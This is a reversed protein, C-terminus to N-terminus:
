GTGVWIRNSEPHFAVAGITISLAEDFLPEFSTGHNETLWLGGSAYAVFFASGDDSALAVDVVRGSMVTPGVSRLNLGGTWSNEQATQVQDKVTMRESAPTANLSNKSEKRQAVAKQGFLLASTLMLAITPFSRFIM